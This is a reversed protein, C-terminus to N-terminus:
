KKASQDTDKGPRGARWKDFDESFKKRRENRWESYDTDFKKMQDSRWHRYDPEHDDDDSEFRGRVGQGQSEGGYGGRGLENGLDRSRYNQGGSGRGQGGYDRGGEPYGWGSEPGSYDQEYGAGGRSRDSEGYGYRGRAYRRGYNGGYDEDDEIFRGRADRPHEREEFDHRNDQRNRM